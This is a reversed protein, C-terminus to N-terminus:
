STAAQAREKAERDCDEIANDLIADLANM